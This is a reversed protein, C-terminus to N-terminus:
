AEIADNENNLLKIERNLNLLLERTNLKRSSMASLGGRFPATALPLAVSDFVSRARM